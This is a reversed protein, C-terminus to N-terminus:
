KDRFTEMMERSFTLSMDTRDHYAKVADVFKNQDLLFLEGASPKYFNDSSPQLAAHVQQKVRVMKENWVASHIAELDGESLNSLFLKLVGVMENKM